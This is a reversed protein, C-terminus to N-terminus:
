EERWRVGTYWMVAVMGGGKGGGEPLDQVGIM